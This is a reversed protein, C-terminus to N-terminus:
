AIRRAFLRQLAAFIGRGFTLYRHALFGIPLNVAIAILKAVLPKLGLLAGGDVIAVTIAGCAGVIILYTVLQHRVPRDHARFNAYKNLTFHTATGLAYSLTAVLTLPWRAHLMLAFSGVDVCFTFGGISLYRALQYPWAHGDLLQQALPHLKV